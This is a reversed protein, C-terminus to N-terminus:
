LSEVKKMKVLTKLRDLTVQKVQDLQSQLVQVGRTTVVVVERVGDGTVDEWRLGLVPASLSRTWALRWGQASHRYSLLQHGYTGLILDNQGKMDVDAVCITTVVDHLDSEPLPSSDTLGAQLINTFVETQGLSHAVCLELQREEREPRSHVQLFPPPPLPEPLVSFLRTCTVPGAFERRWTQLSEPSSITVSTVVLLGCGCGTATVRTEGVEALDTWLPM